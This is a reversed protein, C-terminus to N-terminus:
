QWSIDVFWKEVGPWRELREELKAMEEAELSRGTSYQKRIRRVDPHAGRWTMSEAYGLVAEESDLLGGSWNHELQAWVREIPNYKSHYPPYYTDKGCM